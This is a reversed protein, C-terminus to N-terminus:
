EGRIYLFNQESTSPLTPNWGSIVSIGSQPAPGINSQAIVKIGIYLLQSLTRREIPIILTFRGGDLKPEPGNIYIALRCNEIRDPVPVPYDIEAGTKKIARTHIPIVRM